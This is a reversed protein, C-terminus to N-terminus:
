AAHAELCKLLISPRIFMCKTIQWKTMFRVVRNPELVTALPTALQSLWARHSALFSSYLSYLPNALSLDSASCTLSFSLSCPRKEEFIEHVLCAAAVAAAVDLVTSSSLKLVGGLPARSTYLTRAGLDWSLETIWIMVLAQQSSLTSYMTLNQHSEREKIRRTFYGRFKPANGKMMAMHWPDQEQHSAFRTLQDAQTRSNKKRSALVVTKVM